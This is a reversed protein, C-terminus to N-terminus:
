SKGGTSEYIHRAFRMMEGYEAGYDFWAVRRLYGLRQELTPLVESIRDPWFGKGIGDVAVCPVGHVACDLAVNSHHVVALCAGDLWRDISGDRGDVCGAITGEEPKKPRFVVRKSSGYHSRIQELMSREWEGHRYGFPQCTKESVSLLVVHGDPNYREHLAIGLRDFRIGDNPAFQLQDNPHFANVSMRFTSGQKLYSMDLVIVPRGTNRRKYFAEQQQGGGWGCVVLWHHDGTYKKTIIANPQPLMSRIALEAWGMQGDFLLFETGNMTSEM